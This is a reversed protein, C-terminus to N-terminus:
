EVCVCNVLTKGLLKYLGLKNDGNKQQDQPM